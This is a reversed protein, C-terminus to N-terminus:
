RHLPGLDLILWKLLCSLLSLAPFLCKSLLARPIRQSKRVAWRWEKKFLLYRCYPLRQALCPSRHLCASNRDERQEQAVTMRCGKYSVSLFLIPDPNSLSNWALGGWRSTELWRFKLDRKKLCNTALISHSLASQPTGPVSHLSMCPLKSGSEVPDRRNYHPM